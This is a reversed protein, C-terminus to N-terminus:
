AQQSERLPPDVFADDSGCVCVAPSHSQGDPPRAAQRKLDCQHSNKTDHGLKANRVSVRRELENTDPVPSVRVADEHQEVKYVVNESTSAHNKRARLQHRAHRSHM